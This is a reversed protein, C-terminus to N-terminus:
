SSVAGPGGTCRPGAIEIPRDESGVDVMLYGALLEKNEPFPGDTVVPANV